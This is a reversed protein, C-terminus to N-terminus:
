QNQACKMHAYEQFKIDYSVNEAATDNIIQGCITCCVNKNEFSQTM